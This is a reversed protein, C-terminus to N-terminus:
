WTKSHITRFGSWLKEPPLRWGMEEMMHAKFEEQGVRSRYDDVSWFLLWQMRPFERWLFEKALEAVSKGKTWEPKLGMMEPTMSEMGIIELRVGFQEFYGGGFYEEDATGDALEALAYLDGMKEQFSLKVLTQLDADSRPAHQDPLPDTEWPHIVVLVENVTLLGIGIRGEYKAAETLHLVVTDANRPRIDYLKPSFYVARDFRPPFREVDECNSLFRVIRLRDTWAYLLGKTQKTHTPGAFDLILTSEIWPWQQTFCRRFSAPTMTISGGSTLGSRVTILGDPNDPGGESLILHHSLQRDARKRWERCASRLALLTGISAYRFILDIIHPLETECISPTSNM